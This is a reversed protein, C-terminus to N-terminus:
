GVVVTLVVLVLGCVIGNDSTSSRSARTRCTPTRYIEENIWDINRHFDSKVSILREQVQNQAQTNQTLAAIAITLRPAGM